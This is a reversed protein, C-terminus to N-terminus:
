KLLHGPLHAETAGGEPSAQFSCHFTYHILYVVALSSMYQSGHIRLLKSNFFEGSIKDSFLPRM